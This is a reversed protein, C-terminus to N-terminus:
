GFEQCGNDHQVGNGNKSREIRKLTEARVFTSVPLHAENAAQEIKGYDSETLHVVIKREQKTEAM